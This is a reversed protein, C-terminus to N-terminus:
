IHYFLAGTNTQGSHDHTGMLLVSSYFGRDCVQTCSLSSFISDKSKYKFVQTNTALILVSIQRRSPPPRRQSRVRMEWASTTNKVTPVLHLPKQLAFVHVQISISIFSGLNDTCGWRWHVSLVFRRLPGEPWTSCRAQLHLM